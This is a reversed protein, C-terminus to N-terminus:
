YLLGRRLVPKGNIIVGIPPEYNNVGGALGSTLSGQLCMTMVPIPTQGIYM